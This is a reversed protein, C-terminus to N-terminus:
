SSFRSKPISVSFKGLFIKEYNSPMGMTNIVSTVDFFGSKKTTEVTGTKAHYKM